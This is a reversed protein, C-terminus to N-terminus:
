QQTAPKGGLLAWAEDPVVQPYREKFFQAAKPFKAIRDELAFPIWNKGFHEQWLEDLLWPKSAVHIFYGPPYIVEELCPVNRASEQTYYEGNPGDIIGDTHSSDYNEIRFCSKPAGPVTTASLLGSNQSEIVLAPLHRSHGDVWDLESGQNLDIFTPHYLLQRSGQYARSRRDSKFWFDSFANFQRFTNAGSFVIANKLLKFRLSSDSYWLVREVNKNDLLTKLRLGYGEALVVLGHGSSIRVSEWSHTAIQPDDIRTPGNFYLSALMNQLIDRALLSGFPYDDSQIGNRQLNLPLKGDPDIISLNPYDIITELFHRGNSWRPPSWHNSHKNPMGTLVSSNTVFIGNCTLKSAPSYTWYVEYPLDAIMKCWQAGELDVPINGGTKVLKNKSNYFIRQVSPSAFHYWDWYQPRVKSERDKILKEYKDASVEISIRTGTRIGDRKFVEILDNDLTTSFYFGSNAGVYKTEVEIRAGILFAALAGVGFRGSRMVKSKAKTEEDIEFEKKWQPSHRYSAGARLFYDRITEETMGIGRDTITMVAHGTDGNIATLEIVVDAEQERRPVDAYEPNDLVFQDYERVADISNQMLERVGYSPDDGYLPGILLKLLEARAVDFRIRDPVYSVSEAFTNVDDLNSRVRRVSLGLKDWGEPSYRGYVEGLVAWSSDLEQQIGALWEKLRLFVAVEDPKAQIFLAEPDRDKTINRVAQHAMHEIESVGSYIKKYEFIRSSTRNSDIQFYDAVRLLAMLYVAHVDQYERRAEEGFDPSTKLYDLCTRLPLGHSRAILGVLDRWESPLSEELKLLQGSVGPVGHRAMEHALRPHHQRIFEGILLYDTRTLNNWHAFPDQVTATPVSSDGGFVKVLKADDWRRALFMFDAWTQAWDTTDFPRIPPYATGTGKILQHFGAETLHLASDHFLVALILAAADAGSFHPRATDPILKAATELVQEMHQIGHDTYDPFFPLRSPRFWDSFNELAKQVVHKHPATRLREEFFAPLTIEAPM